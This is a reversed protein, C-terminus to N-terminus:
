QGDYRLTHGTASDFWGISSITKIEVKQSKDDPNVVKQSNYNRGGEQWSMQAYQPTPPLTPAPVGEETPPYVNNIQTPMRTIHQVVTNMQNIATIVSRLDHAPPITPIVTQGPQGARRTPGPESYSIPCYPANSM